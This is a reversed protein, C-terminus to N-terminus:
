LEPAPIRLTYGSQGSVWLGEGPAIDRTAVGKDDIWKADGADVYMWTDWSFMEKSKGAPTLTQLMVANEVDAGTAVIDQINVQLPFPNNVAVFGNVLEVVIDSTGVEGATQFTYSSQGSVWLAEGPQFKRTAIGKDDIWKADGAEVYMWTDWSFMEKSKGAATLTQVMVVNEVDAGEVVIDQIGYGDASMGLFQSGILKFGNELNAKSYGVVNDSTLGDAFGVAACYLLIYAVVTRLFYTSAAFFQM